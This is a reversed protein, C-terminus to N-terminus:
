TRVQECKLNSSHLFDCVYEHELMKRCNTAKKPYVLFDQLSSSSLIDVDDWPLSFLVKASPLFIKLLVLYFSKFIVQILCM